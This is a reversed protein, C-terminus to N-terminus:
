TRSLLHWFAKLICWISNLISSKSLRGWDWHKGCSILNSFVISLSAFIAWIFFIWLFNPFAEILFTCFHIPLAFNSAFSIDNSTLVTTLVHSVFWLGFRHVVTAANVLALSKLWVTETCSWWNDGLKHYICKRSSNVQYQAATITLFLATHWLTNIFSQIEINPAGFFIKLLLPPSNIPSINVSIYWVNLILTCIETDNLEHLLPTHSCCLWVSVFM